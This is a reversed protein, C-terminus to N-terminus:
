YGMEPWNSNGVVKPLVRRLDRGVRAWVVDEQQYSAGKNYLIIIKAYSATHPEWFHSNLGQNFLIGAAQRSISSYLKDYSFHTGSVRGYVFISWYEYEYKDALGIWRPDSKHNNISPEQYKSLSLFARRTKGLRRRILVINVV